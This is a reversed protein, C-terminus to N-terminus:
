CETTGLPFAINIKPKVERKNCCGLVEACNKPPAVIFPTVYVVNQLNLAAFPNGFGDRSMTKGRYINKESNM